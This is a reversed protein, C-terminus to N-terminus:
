LYRECQFILLQHHLQFSSDLFFVYEEMIQIQQQTHRNYRKRKGNSNNDSSNVEVEDNNQLAEPNINLGEREDGM